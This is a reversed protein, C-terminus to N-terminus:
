LDDGGKGFICNEKCLDCEKKPDIGCSHLIKEKRQSHKLGIELVRMQVAELEKEGKSLRSVQNEYRIAAELYTKHLHSGALFISFTLVVTYILTAEM